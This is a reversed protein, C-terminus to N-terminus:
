RVASRRLRSRRRITHAVLLIALVVGTVAHWRIKTPHGAFWDWFGSVLMGATILALLLDALALRGSPKALIRVRALLRASVRRRQALHLGALVAFALGAAIHIALVLPEFTLSVVLTGILGLHVLWRFLARRDGGPGPAHSTM